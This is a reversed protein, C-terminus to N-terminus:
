AVVSHKQRQAPEHAQTPLWAPSLQTIGFQTRVQGKLRCCPRWPPQAAARVPGQQLSLAAAPAKQHPQRRHHLRHHLPALRRPPDAALLTAIRESTARRSLASAAALTVQLTASHVGPAKVGLHLLLISLSSQLPPRWLLACVPLAHWTNCCVAALWVSAQTVERHGSLLMTTVKLLILLCGSSM